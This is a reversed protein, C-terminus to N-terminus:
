DDLVETLCASPPMTTSGRGRGTSRNALLGRAGSIIERAEGLQMPEEDDDDDDDDSDVDDDDDPDGIPREDDDDDDDFPREARVPAPIPSKM